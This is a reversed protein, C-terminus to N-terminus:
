RFPKKFCIKQWPRPSCIHLEAASLGAVCAATLPITWFSKTWICIERVLIQIQANTNSDCFSIVSYMGVVCLYLVHNYMFIPKMKTQTWLFNITLSGENNQLYDRIVDTFELLILCGCHGLNNLVLPLQHIQRVPHQLYMGWGLKHLRNAEWEEWGERMKVERHTGTSSM